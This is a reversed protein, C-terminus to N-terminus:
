EEDDAMEGLEQLLIVVEEHVGNNESLDAVKYYDWQSTYFIEDNKTYQIIGTFDADISDTTLVHFKDVIIVCYPMVEDSMYLM